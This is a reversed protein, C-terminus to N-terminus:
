IAEKYGKGSIVPMPPKNKAGKGCDEDGGNNKRFINRCMNWLLGWCFFALIIGFSLCSLGLWIHGSMIHMCALIAVAFPAVWIGFLCIDLCGFLLIFLTIRLIKKM